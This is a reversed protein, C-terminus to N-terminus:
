EDVGMELGWDVRAEREKENREKMVTSVVLDGGIEV